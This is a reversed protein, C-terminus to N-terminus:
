AVSTTRVATDPHSTFAERLTVGLGPAESLEVRGNRVEPLGVTLQPYWSAQSARVTEAIMGNPQSAVLQVTAAFSIPGTCDHPAFSVGYTDALSAIRVAETLGGTWGPDVIAVDLAGADLLPKFRRAGALSEGAAIPVDVRERLRRYGEVSDLRMPDEVWFPRIDELAKLIRTAAKLSWLSHMEVLIDMADGAEARIDELIGMGARLEASSIDQGRTREAAADFPWVKMGTFGENMLSRTLEAPRHLFGELDEYPRDEAEKGPLGWNTTAPHGDVRVYDYGACTNYVRVSSTMPGGLLRTVPMNAHRGLLDWLAIDIAGNGRVEAGSGDFGAYPRLAQAVAAPSHDTSGALMPAATEHLYAEVAPAGWFSEGLGVEGDESSLALICVNPQIPTRYTTLGTIRM